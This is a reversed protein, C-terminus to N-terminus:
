LDEAWEARPVLQWGPPLLEPPERTSEFWPTPAVVRAGADHRLFAGWWSLTSNAIVFSSAFRMVQLAEDPALRGDVDITVLNERFGAKGLHECASAPEDSFVWVPREEDALASTLARSYYAPELIGFGPAKRYDGMRVHVVIPRITSAEDVLDQAQSSLHLSRFFEADCRAKLASAVRWSQWFGYLLRVRLFGSTQYAPELSTSSDLILGLQGLGGISERALVRRLSQPSEQERYLRSLGRIMARAPASVSSNIRVSECLRLRNIAPSHHASHGVYGPLALLEVGSGNALAIGAALQFLQNGFGGNLVVKVATPTRPKIM